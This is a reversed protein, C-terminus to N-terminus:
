GSSERFMRRLKRLLDQVSFPKQIFAIGEELVGHHVIVDDTYGSMYIVKIDPYRNKVLTHLEKGNSDQLVVDTLLLDIPPGQSIVELCKRGSNVAITGYGYKKLITETLERVADNDEVILVQETGFFDEQKPAAAASQEPVAAAAPFWIQFVTGKGPESHVQISGNHQKVIGYVTSLGLGTGKGQGKTTFFPDFIREKTKADMGHGNDRFTLEVCGDAAGVSGSLGANMEPSSTNVEITIKGGDPMADQANVALNMVVQEIQGPDALINPVGRSLKLELRIDDRLIRDLLSEFGALIQNLSVSKIELAQKRSFALLQRVMDKARNGANLIQEVAKRDPSDSPMNGLLLEGYGVVPSLMNNLDHAVGGALRGVAEMKQAQIYQEELNDKERALKEQESIDIIIGRFGAPGSEDTRASSYILVPFTSGDKRIANYKHGIKNAHGHLIRTMAAMARERDEPVLMDLANLGNGIDRPSYGFVELANNNVFSLRGDLDMEFVTQPLLEALARFRQESRRLDSEFRKRVSIDTHAGVLSIVEGRQDKVAYARLLVPLKQGDKGFMEVEGAWPDGAMITRFVERGVQQDVYLTSPPDDGIEGFLEDFAKNQYWHKGEPTSMGIADSGAEVATKFLALTEESRKRETINEFAVCLQNDSMPFAVIRFAGQLREDKYFLDETNFTRGTTMVSLFAETIGSKRAEPWIEDFGRGIWEQGSIGTLKEAAPNAHYLVLRDPPHYDYIFLGSPIERVVQAAARLNKEDRKRETIDLATFTVGESWNDPNLPTSSLLVNVTKGNKHKWRTEVTGTGTASIQRYKERGVFEYEEDSPYLMRASRGILEGSAFGTMECLRDNAQTIIRDVVMGIGIPASKFISNLTNERKKLSEIISDHETTRPHGGASEQERGGGKEFESELRQIKRELDEYTPKIM